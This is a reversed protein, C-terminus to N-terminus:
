AEPLGELFAVAKEQDRRFQEMMDDAKDLVLGVAQEEQCKIWERVSMKLQETPIEAIFETLLGELDDGLLEYKSDLIEKVYGTAECVDKYFEHYKSSDIPVWENAEKQLNVDNSKIEKSGGLDINKTNNVYPTSQNKIMIDSESFLKDDNGDKTKEDDNIPGENVLDDQNDKKDEIESKESKASGEIIAHRQNMLANLMEYKSNQAESSTLGNIPPTKAKKRLMTPSVEHKSTDDNADVQEPESNPLKGSINISAPNNVTSESIPDAQTPVESTEEIKIQSIHEDYEKKIHINNNSEYDKIKSEKKRRKKMDVKKNKINKSNGLIALPDNDNEEYNEGDIDGLLRKLRSKKSKKEKKGKKSNKKVIEKDDIETKVIDNIEIESKNSTFVPTDSLSVDDVPHEKSPEIIPSKDVDIRPMHDNINDGYEYDYTDQITTVMENVPSQRGQEEQSTQDNKNNQLAEIKMKLFKLESELKEVRSTEEKYPEVSSNKIEDIPSNKTEDVPYKPKEIFIDSNNHPDKLQIEPDDEAAVKKVNISNIEASANNKNQDVQEKMYNDMNEFAYDDNEYAPYDNQDSINDDMPIEGDMPIEDGLHTDSRPHSYIEEQNDPNIVHIEKQEAHTETEEIIPEVKERQQREREKEKERRRRRNSAFFSAGTESENEADLETFFQSLDSSKMSPIEVLKDSPIDDNEKEGNQLFEEIEDQDLIEIPMATATTTTTISVITPQEEEASVINKNLKDDSNFEYDEEGMDFDPQEESEPLLEGLNEETKNYTFVWCNPQEDQHATVPDDGEEWQELRLGCYMCIVRDDNDNYSDYYFGTSTMTEVNPYQHKWFHKFTEDRVKIATPSNVNGFILDKNWDTNSSEYIGNGIMKNRFKWILSLACSPNQSQHYESIDVDLPIPDRIVQNCCSCTIAFRHKLSLPTYYFGVQSLWQPSQLIVQKSGNRLQSPILSESAVAQYSIPEGNIMHVKSFTALRTKFSLPPLTEEQSTIKANSNIKERSHTRRKLPM